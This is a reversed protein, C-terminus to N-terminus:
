APIVQNHHAQRIRDQPRSAQQCRFTAIADAGAVTWRM